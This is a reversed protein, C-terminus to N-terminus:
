FGSGDLVRVARAVLDHANETANIAREIEETMHKSVPDVLHLAAFSRDLSDDLLREARNLDELLRASM